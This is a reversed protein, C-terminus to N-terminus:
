RQVIGASSAAACIAALVAETVQAKPIIVFNWRSLVFILFRENEVWHQFRNWELNGTGDRNSTRLGTADFEFRTDRGAIRLDDYLRKLRRPFTVCTIAVLGITSIVSYILGYEVYTVANAPDFTRDLADIGATLLISIAAFAAFAVVLRRWLWMWRTYVWYASVFEDRSLSITFEGSM